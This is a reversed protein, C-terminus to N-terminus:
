KEEENNDDEKKIGEVEENPNIGFKNLFNKLYEDTAKKLDLALYQDIAELNSWYFPLYFLTFIIGVSLAIVHSIAFNGLLFISILGGLIMGLLLLIFIPWNLALFAKMYKKKYLSLSYRAVHSSFPASFMKLRSFITIAEKSIFFIFAFSFTINSLLTVISIYLNLENNNAELIAKINDEYSADMYAVNLMEKIFAKMSPMFTSSQSFFAYVGLGIFISLILEVLLAKFFSRFVGFSSMYTPSYYLKVGNFLMKGNLIDRENLSVHCLICSFFFPLAVLLILLMQALESVTGVLMLAAIFLACIIALIWSNLKHKRYISFALQRTEKISM